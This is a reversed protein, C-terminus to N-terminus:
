FNINSCIAETTDTNTLQIDNNSFTWTVGRSCKQQTGCSAFMSLLIVIATFWLVVAIYSSLQKM